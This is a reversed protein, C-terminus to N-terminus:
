GFGPREKALFARVGEAFDPGAYVERLLDEDDAPDAELARSRDLLQRKTAGDDGVVPTVADEVLTAVEADLGAADEVLAALAGVAYAREASVLRAALLMERTLPEGIM